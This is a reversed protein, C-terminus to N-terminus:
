DWTLSVEKLLARADKRRVRATEPTLVSAAGCAAGQVLAEEITRGADIAAAIGGAMCDGAGVPNVARLKPGALKGFRGRHVVTAPKSGRSVVITEILEAARRLQIAELEDENIRLLSPRAQIGQRLPARSTDLITFAGRCARIIQAYFTEPLGPPLSGSMAVVRSRKAATAAFRLARRAAAHPVRPGPELVETVDGNSFIALNTRTEGPIDIWRTSIGKARMAADLIKGRLGPAFGLVTVKAGMEAAAGAVNLGKGGAHESVEVARTLGGLVLRDVVIRKDIASNLSIVTIM